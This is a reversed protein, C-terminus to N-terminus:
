IDSVFWGPAFGGNVSLFLGNSNTDTTANTITKSINLKSNVDAYSTGVITANAFAPDSSYKASSATSAAVTLTTNSISGIQIISVNSQRNITTEDVPTAILFYSVGTAAPFLINIDFRTSSLTVKLNNKPIFASTFSKTEFNYFQNSSSSIQLMFSAGIDGKVVLKRQQGGAPVNTTSISINSINAM